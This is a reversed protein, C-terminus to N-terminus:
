QVHKKYDGKKTKATVSTANGYGVISRASINVLYSTDKELAAIVIITTKVSV